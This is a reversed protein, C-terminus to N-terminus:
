APPKSEVKVKIAHAGGCAACKFTRRDHGPKAPEVRFPVIPVECVPCLRDSIPSKQGPMM